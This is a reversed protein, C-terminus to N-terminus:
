ENQVYVFLHNRLIDNEMHSCRVQSASEDNTAFSFTRDFGFELCIMLSSARQGRAGGRCRKIQSNMFFLTEEFSDDIIAKWYGELLRGIAKWLRGYGERGM